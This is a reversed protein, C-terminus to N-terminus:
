IKLHGESIRHNKNDLHTTDYNQLDLIDLFLKVLFMKPHCQFSKTESPEHNKLHFERYKKSWVMFINKEAERPISVRM